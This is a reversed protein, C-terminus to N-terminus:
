DEAACTFWFTSGRGEKAEAWIRGGHRNIIRRVTALGIGTGPFEEKSHLRFFPTFLKSANESDFGAGNDRVFFRPCKTTDAQGVEIRAGPTKSTYKWANSLLNDLVITMLQPDCQAVMNDPIVVDVKRGPERRRLEAVIDRAVQALDTPGRQLSASNLAALQLLSEIIHAMQQTSSRILDVHRKQAPTANPGLSEVLLEAFGTVARLPSRLDHSVSYSFAELEHNLAELQRTRLAVRQELEDHVRINEMAVSTSNALAQILEVEHPTATRPRSWYVGIAGIPAECRIPVMVLSKVFTPRYADAPIRPDLYIDPIVAPAAHLMSWGSICTEMPFRQGKWLPAIADEDAYYCRDNERLVFTAGDAGSIQRAAHRVIDQVAAVTRALSLAQIAAVLLAEPTPSSASRKSTPEAGAVTRQAGM